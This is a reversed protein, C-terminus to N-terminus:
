QKPYREFLPDSPECDPYGDKTYPLAGAKPTTVGPDQDDPDRDDLQCVQELDEPVYYADDGRWDARVLRSRVKPLLRRSELMNDLNEYRKQISEIARRMRDIGAPNDSHITLKPPQRGHLVLQEEIWALVDYGTREPRGEREATEKDGLDYDLSVVEVPESELWQIVHDPWYCRTWGLPTARRDDLFIKVTM